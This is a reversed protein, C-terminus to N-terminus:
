NFIGVAFEVWVLGIFTLIVLGVSVRYLFNKRKPAILAFTMGAIALLAGAVVFDAFGWQVESTVQMAAFPVLLLLMPCATWVILRHSREGIEWTHSSEQPM